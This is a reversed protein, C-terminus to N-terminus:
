KIRVKPVVSLGPAIDLESLDIPEDFIIKVPV